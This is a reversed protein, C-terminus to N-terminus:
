ELLILNTQNNLGMNTQFYGHHHQILFFHLISTFKTFVEKNILLIVQIFMILILLQNIQYIILNYISNFLRILVYM